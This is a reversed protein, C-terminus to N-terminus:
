ENKITQKSYFGDALNNTRMQPKFFYYTKLYNLQL